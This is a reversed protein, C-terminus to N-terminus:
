RFKALRRLQLKLHRLPATVKWSSSAYLDNLTTQARALEAKLAQTQADMRRTASRATDAERNLLRNDLELLRIQAALDERLTEQKRERHIMEGRLRDIEQQSHELQAWLAPIQASARANDLIRRLTETSWLQRWKGFLKDLGRSVSDEDGAIGFGSDGGIRYVASIQDVHLFRTHRSLQIWFDWDEYVDLTEDLMCGREVLGRRFLVAHMPLYNEYLLRIADFHVNFTHLLREDAGRIEVCKVGSYAADYDACEILAEALTRIHSPLFWDDDDLFCILEGTAENLGINASRVRGQSFRSQILRFHPFRRQTQAVTGSADAGGDNIVLIELHTYEQVVLSALADRLLHLRDKTRVIVSVLPRHDGSVACEACASTKAPSITTM